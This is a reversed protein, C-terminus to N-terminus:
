VHARGIETAQRFLPVRLADAPLRPAPATQVLPKVTQPPTQPPAAAQGWALAWSLLLLLPANRLDTPM